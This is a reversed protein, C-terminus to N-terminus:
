THLCVMTAVEYSCIHLHFYCSSFLFLTFYLLLASLLSYIFLILHSNFLFFSPLLIITSSTSGIALSWEFYFLMLILNSSYFLILLWTGEWTRTSILGVVSMYYIDEQKLPICAAYVHSIKGLSFDWDINALWLMISLLGLLKLM